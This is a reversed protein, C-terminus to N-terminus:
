QKIILIFLLAVVALTNDIFALRVVLKSYAVCDLFLGMDLFRDGRGRGKL